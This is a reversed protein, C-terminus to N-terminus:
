RVMNHALEHLMTGLLSPYPLFEAERGAPRLRLRIEATGGGGGGVNLGQLPHCELPAHTHTHPSSTGHHRASRWHWAGVAPRWSGLSSGGVGWAGGPPSQHPVNRQTFPLHVQPAAHHAAGAAGGSGAARTGAASSCHRHRACHAACSAAPAAGPQSCTASRLPVCAPTAPLGDFRRALLCRSETRSRWSGSRLLRILIM